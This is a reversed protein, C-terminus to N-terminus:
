GETPPPTVLSRDDGPEGELDLVTAPGARGDRDVAEALVRVLIERRHDGLAQGLGGRDGVPLVRRGGSADCELPSEEIYTSSGSGRAIRHRVSSSAARRRDSYAAFSRGGLGSCHM